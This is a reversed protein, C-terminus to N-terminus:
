SRIATRKPNIVAYQGKAAFQKFKQHGNQSNCLHRVILFESKQRINAVPLLDQQKAWAHGSNTSKM